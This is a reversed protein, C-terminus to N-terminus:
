NRVKLKVNSYAFAIDIIYLTKENEVVYYLLKFKDIYAIRLLDNNYFTPKSRPFDCIMKTIRKSIGNLNINNERFFILVSEDFEIKYM